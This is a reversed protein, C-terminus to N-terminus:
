PLRHADIPGGRALGESTDGRFRRGLYNPGKVLGRFDGVADGDGDTFSGLNLCYIFARKYWLLQVM